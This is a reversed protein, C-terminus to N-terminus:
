MITPKCLINAADMLYIIHNFLKQFWIDMQCEDHSSALIEMKKWNITYHQRIHQIYIVQNYKTKCFRGRSDNTEEINRLIKNLSTVVEINYM